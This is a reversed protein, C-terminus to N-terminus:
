FDIGLSFHTLPDRVIGDEVGWAYDVRVFYGFLKSRVGLGYSGVIPEKNNDLIVKVSGREIERTNFANEESYPSPGTWATGVDSFGILQFNKIFDTKIPKRFFYKFVPWRLEANIVAFSNGNRINQLFGRMNTAISQFYYNQDQAIPTENNFREQDGLVVWNDVAGMYYVLKRSGLSTSGALRTAFILDRHIKQYHRFDAGLILMDSNAEEPVFYAEAFIKYRSGNYLNLGKDRTNDFILEVKSGLWNITNDEEELTARDTSLTVNRDNRASVTGQVALTESFPWKFIGKVQHIFTRNLTFPNIQQTITQRQFVYKKDLRHKRDSFSFFFERNNGNFSYRMGGEIKYDELLDLVGVKLVVGMGPNVFPGGNFRQYLQNAFDFDFQTVLETPLYATRYNVRLPLEMEDADNEGKQTNGDQKLQLFRSNENPPDFKGIDQIPEKQAEEGEFIYENINVEDPKQRDVRQVKKLQVNAAISTANKEQADAEEAKEEAKEQFTTNQIESLTQVESIPQEYFRYKGDLYLMEILKGSEQDIDHSIINRKYNTAPQVKTFYRYHITTDVRSIASDRQAIYRNIVGNNGSLFLYEDEKFPLPFREDVNETHTIRTLVDDDSELDLIFLDHNETFDTRYERNTKTLTDNTRNSSFIIKENGEVYRPNLDDYIDFTIQEMSRTLVKFVFLDTQGNRIGSLVIERGNPAYEFDLVKEIRRMEYEEWKKEKFNYTKFEIEGKKELMIGLIDGSPHWSLMPYSLDPLRDLKHDGKLIKDIKPKRKSAFKKTNVDGVWVKYQGLENTVYAFQNGNPSVKYEQYVRTKRTRLKYPKEPPLNRRKEDYEYKNQYFGLTEAILSELSIGLVHLFGSEVSRSIRAMFLTNPIVGQGYIEAIYYWLSHGAVRADAGTLRNFKEFRGNVVADRMQNDIEVSWPDTLYSVLGEVYWDPLTLLASNKIVEKWDEGFMMHRIYIEALGERIQRDLKAHDGEFFLFLKNGEIRTVGGINQEDGDRLGINTQRWDSQNNFVIIYFKNSLRYDLKKQFSKITEQATKASHVALNNGTGYFYVNFEEFDYHNWNFEDFQLRNKGFEQHSGRYFQANVSLSIFFIVVLSM